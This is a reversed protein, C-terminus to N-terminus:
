SQGPRQVILSGNGGGLGHTNILITGLHAHRPVRPVYDLDCDPDPKDLNATPPIIDHRVALACAIVQLAGAASLPNGTVGKISSIPVRYAYEGFVSKIVSTEVKDLVPHGPGHACIYSIHGIRKGSNAIAEPMTLALGSAPIDLDTDMHTAYGAIELYPCVGRALAHNLSELVLMGAGESVVGCDRDLDFPRSAQEPTDNRTSLLGGKAMCAFTLPNIPADTGGCLAVQVKGARILDAALAVAELGAACASSVTTARTLLPVHRSLTSAAQHPQCAEVIHTPVRAPGRELMREMGETIVEIASSSVGLVLPVSSEAELQDRTLGADAIAENTAALALLTQRALRKSNINQRIHIKPDFNKVEGAIRCPHQSADFLTIPGIGSKAALLTEWFAKKGIGNPAVVGLGTVVVKIPAAM